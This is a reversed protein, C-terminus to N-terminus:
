ATEISAAKEKEGAEDGQIVARGAEALAASAPSLPPPPRRSLETRLQANETQLMEILAAQQRNQKELLANNIGLTGIISGFGAEIATKAEDFNLLNENEKQNNM